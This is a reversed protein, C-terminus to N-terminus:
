AAHIIPRDVPDGSVRRFREPRLNPSGDQHAWCVPSRNYVSLLTGCGPHECVRGSTAPPRGRATAGPMSARVPKGDGFSQDM